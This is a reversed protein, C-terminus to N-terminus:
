LRTEPDNSGPGRPDWGDDDDDDWFGRLGEDEGQLAEPDEKALWPHELADAARVRDDPDPELAARLFAAFSAADEPDEDALGPALRAELTARPDPAIVRVAPGRRARPSVSKGNKDAGGGNKSSSGPTGADSGGDEEVLVEYVVPGDRVGGPGRRAGGPSRGDAFFEKTRKGRRMLTEPFPGLAAVASAVLTAESDSAFLVEGTVLEALVCAASWVDIKADYGAGLVVEPARYTRSQVYHGLRDSEAFCSSGLDILKVACRSAPGALMVNEPKVDCHIV